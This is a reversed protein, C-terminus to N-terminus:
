CYTTNSIDVNKATHYDTTALAIKQNIDQQKGANKFSDYIIRKNKM